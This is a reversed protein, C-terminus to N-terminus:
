KTSFFAATATYIAALTVTHSFLHKLLNGYISSNALYVYNAYCMNGVINNSSHIEKIKKGQSHSACEIQLDPLRIKAADSWIKHSSMRRLQLLLTVALMTDASIACMECNESRALVPSLRNQLSFMSLYHSWTDRRTVDLSHSSSGRNVQAFVTVGVPLRLPWGHSENLSPAFEDIKERLAFPLKAVM